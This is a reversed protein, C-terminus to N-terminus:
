FVREMDLADSNVNSHLAEGNVFINTNIIGILFGNKRYDCVTVCQM